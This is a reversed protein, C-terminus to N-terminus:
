KLKEKLINTIKNKMFSLYVENFGKLLIRNGDGGKWERIIGERDESKVDFWKNKGENAVKDQIMVVLNTLPIHGVLDNSLVTEIVSNLTDDGDKSFM